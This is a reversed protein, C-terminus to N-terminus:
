KTYAYWNTMREPHVVIGIEAFLEKLKFKGTVIDPNEMREQSKKLNEPSILKLKDFGNDKIVHFAEEDYHFDTM